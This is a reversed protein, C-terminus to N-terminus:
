VRIAVWEGARVTITRNESSCSDASKKFDEHGESGGLVQLLDEWGEDGTGGDHEDADLQDLRAELVPGAATSVALGPRLGANELEARGDVSRTREWPSACFEDAKSKGDEYGDDDAFAEASRDHLRGGNDDTEEDAADDRTCSAVEVPCRNVGGGGCREDPDM